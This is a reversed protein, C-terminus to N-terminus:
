WKLCVPKPKFRYRREFTTYEMCAGEVDEIQGFTGAALLADLRRKVAEHGNKEFVKAVRGVTVYENLMAMLYVDEYGAILPGTTADARLAAIVRLADDWAVKKDPHCVEQCESYNEQHRWKIEDGAYGDLPSVLRNYNNTSDFREDASHLSTLVVSPVGKAWIGRRHVIAERQALVDTRSPEEDIVMIHAFGRRLQSERLDPCDALLRGYGDKEAPDAACSWFGRRANYTGLKALVYLEKYHWGGWRHTPGYSELTNFGALRFPRRRLPGALARFTDGDNYYVPTSVGNLRVLSTQAQAEGAFGTIALVALAGITGWFRTSRQRMM